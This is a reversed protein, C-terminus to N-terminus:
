EDDEQAYERLDAFVASIAEQSVGELKAAKAASGFKAPPIAKNQDRFKAPPFKKDRSAGAFNPPPPADKYTASKSSGKPGPNSSSRPPGCPHPVEMECVVSADPLGGENLCETIHEDVNSKFSM